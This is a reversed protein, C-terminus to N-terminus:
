LIASIGAPVPRPDDLENQTPSKFAIVVIIPRLFVFYSSADKAASISTSM